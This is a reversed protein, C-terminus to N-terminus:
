ENIQEGTLNNAIELIKRMRHNVGSKSIELIEALETLSLDKKDLRLLALEKLQPPLNEIGMHEDISNIALIQKVSAIVTKDYNANESNNIRNNKNAISKSINTESLTLAARGAGMIALMDCIIDNDKFYIVYRTKRKLSKSPIDFESLLNAFPEPLGFHPTSFELHNQKQPDSVTGSGLFAGKIYSRKCCEDMLSPLSFKVDGAKLIDLEQLLMSADPIHLSYSGGRKILTPCLLYREACLTSIFDLLLYSESHLTFYDDASFKGGFSLMGALMASACCDKEPQASILEKKVDSAFSM